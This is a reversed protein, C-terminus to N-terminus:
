APKHMGFLKSIIPEQCKLGQSYGLTFSLGLVCYDQRNRSRESYVAFLCEFSGSFRPFRVMSAM